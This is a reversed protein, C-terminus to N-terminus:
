VKVGPAILCRRYFLDTRLIYKTGSAVERGEHLEDHLFALCRGVKPAVQIIEGVAKCLIRTEGNTYGDNLYIVMSFQSTKDGQVSCGDQHLHFYGGKKYRIVQMSPCVGSPEFGHINPCHCQLRDWLKDALDTNIYNTNEATRHSRNALAFTSATRFGNCEQIIQWCEPESLLDHYILVRGPVLVEVNM